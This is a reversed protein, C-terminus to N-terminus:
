IGLRAFALRWAFQVLTKLRASVGGRQLKWALVFVQRNLYEARCGTVRAHRQARGKGFAVAPQAKHVRLTTL